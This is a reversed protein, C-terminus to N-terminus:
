ALQPLWEQEASVLEDVVSRVEDLFLFAGTSPDLKIATTVARRDGAIATQVALEQASM